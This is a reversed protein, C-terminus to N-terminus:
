CLIWVTLYTFRFIPNMNMMFVVLVFESVRKQEPFGYGCQYSKAWTAMSQYMVIESDMDFFYVFLNQSHPSKKSESCYLFFRKPYNTLFILKKNWYNVFLANPSNFWSIIVSCLFARSRHRFSELSCDPTPLRYANNKSPPPLERWVLRKGETHFVVSSIPQSYRDSFFRVFDGFNYVGM